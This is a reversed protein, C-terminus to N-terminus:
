PEANGPSGRRRGPETKCASRESTPLSRVPFGCPLGYLPKPTTARPRNLSSAERPLPLPGKAHLGSRSLTGIVRCSPHRIRRRSNMVPSPPTAAHRRTARGQQEIGIVEKENAVFSRQVPVVGNWAPSTDKDALASETKDRRRGGVCLALRRGVGLKFLGIVIKGAFQIRGLRVDGLQLRCLRVLSAQEIEIELVVFGVVDGLRDDAVDVNASSLLDRFCDQERDRDLSSRRLRPALL